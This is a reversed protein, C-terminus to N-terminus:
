AAKKRAKELFDEYPAFDPAASYDPEVGLTKCVGEYIDGVDEAKDTIEEAIQFDKDGVHVGIQEEAEMILETGDLSDLAEDGVLSYEKGLGRLGEIITPSEKGVAVDCIIKCYTAFDFKAVDM